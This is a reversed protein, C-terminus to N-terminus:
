SSTARYCLNTNDKNYSTHKLKKEEDVTHSRCFTTRHSRTFTKTQKRLICQADTETAIILAHHLMKVEHHSVSANILKGQGPISCM